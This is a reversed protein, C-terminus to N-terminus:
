PTPHYLSRYQGPTLTTANKFKRSFSTQDSYGVNQVIQFVTLDTQVLLKKSFDLRLQWLYDSFNVGIRETFFRSWYLATHGFTDAINELSMQNDTFHMDMYLLIDRKMDDDTPLPPKICLKEVIDLLRAKVEHMNRQYPLQALAISLERKAEPALTIGIHSSSVSKEIVVILRYYINRVFPLDHNRNELANFLNEMLEKAKEAESHLLLNQLQDADFPIDNTQRAAEQSSYFVISGSSYGIDIAELAQFYSIGVQQLQKTVDGVGIIESGDTPFSKLANELKERIHQQQDTSLNVLLTCSSKQVLPYIGAASLAAYSVPHIFSDAHKSFDIVAICYLPGAISMNYFNARVVLENKDLILGYIINQLFQQRLAIQSDRLKAELDQNSNYAYQIASNITTLENRSVPHLEFSEQVLNYLNRIPVYRKYALLLAVIICIALVLLAKFVIPLLNAIIRKNIQNLSYLSIFQIDLKPSYVQSLLLAAGSSRLLIQRNERQMALETIQQYQDGSLNFGDPPPNVWGNAGCDFVANVASADDQTETMLHSILSKQFVFIVICRNTDRMTSRGLPCLYFFCDSDEFFLATNKVCSHLLQDLRAFAEQSLGYTSRAVVTLRSLGQYSYMYESSAFYLGFDFINKNALRYKNIEDLGERISRSDELMANYTLKPNLYVAAAIDDCSQLQLEISDKVRTLRSLGENQISIQTNANENDCILFLMICFPVFAVLFFSLLLHHFVSDNKKM